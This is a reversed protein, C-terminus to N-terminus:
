ISSVAPAPASLPWPAAALAITVNKWKMKRLLLEDSGGALIAAPEAVAWAGTARHVTASRAAGCVANLAEKSFFVAELGRAEAFALLGEEDRKLEISAVRALAEPALRHQELVEAVAAEIEERGTGRNCGIGLVLRRPHLLLAGAPWPGTRWSVIVQAQDPEAVAVLDAPLPGLPIEAYLRLSGENVLRACARTLAKRSAAVLALDRAWLDLATRGWLDSATSIVPRAGILEAVRCALQNAGGLHGSLLSIAHRGAEDVVVVAPDEAKDKILQAILRVVIGSAMVFVLGRSRRWLGPLLLGLNKREEVLRGGLGQAIRRALRQGAESVALCVVGGKDEGPLPETQAPLGRSELKVPRPAAAAM